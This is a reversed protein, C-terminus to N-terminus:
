GWSQLPAFEAIGTGFLSIWQGPSASNAASNVSTSGDAAVNLVAGQGCGSANATFLGGAEWGDPTATRPAFPATSGADTSVVVELRWRETRAFRIAAFAGEMSNYPSGSAIFLGDYNRFIKDADRAACGTAVWKSDM